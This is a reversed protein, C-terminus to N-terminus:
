EMKYSKVLGKSKPLQYFSFINVRKIQPHYNIAKKMAWLIENM